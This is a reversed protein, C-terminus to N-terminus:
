KGYEEKIRNRFHEDNEEWFGGERFFHNQWNCYDNPRQNPDNGYIIRQIAPVRAINDLNM